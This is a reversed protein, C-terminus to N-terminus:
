RKPTAAPPAPPPPPPAILARLVDAGAFQGFDSIQQKALAAADSAKGMGKLIVVEYIAVRLIDNANRYAKRAEGFTALAEPQSNASLQLLAFGEWVVGSRLKKASERLMAEGAARDEFWRV